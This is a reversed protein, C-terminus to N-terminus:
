KRKFASLVIYIVQQFTCSATELAFLKRSLNYPGRHSTFLTKQHDAKDVEIQSYGSSVYPTLIVQADELLDACEIMNPSSCSILGSDSNLKWYEISLFPIGHWKQVLVVPWAYETRALQVLRLEFIREIKKKKAIRMSETKSSLSSFTHTSTLSRWNLDTLPPTQNKCINM